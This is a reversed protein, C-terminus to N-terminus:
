RHQDHKAIVTWKSELLLEEEQDSFETEMSYITLIKKKTINTLYTRGVVSDGAYLARHYIFSHGGHILVTDEDLNCAKILITGIGNQLEAVIPFTLPIPVNKYGSKLAEECLFFYRLNDAGIAKAFESIKNDEIKYDFKKLLKPFM